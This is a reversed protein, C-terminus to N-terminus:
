DKLNNQQKGVEEVEPKLDGFAWIGMYLEHDRSAFL